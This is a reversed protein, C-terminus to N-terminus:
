RSVRVVEVLVSYMVVLLGKVAFPANMENLKVCGHWLNLFALFFGIVILVIGYIGDITASISAPFFSHQDVRSSLTSFSAGCFLIFGCIIFHSVNKFVLEVKRENRVFENFWQILTAISM